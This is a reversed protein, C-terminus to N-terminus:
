YINRNGWASPPSEGKFKNLSVVSLLLFYNLSREWGKRFGSVIQEHPSVPTIGVFLWSKVSSEQVQSQHWISGGEFFATSSIHEDQHPLIGNCREGKPQLLVLSYDSFLNRAKFVFRQPPPHTDVLNNKCGSCFDKDSVLCLTGWVRAFEEHYKARGHATCKQPLVRIKSCFWSCKAWVWRPSGLAGPAADTRSFTDRGPYM